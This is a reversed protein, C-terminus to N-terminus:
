KHEDAWNSEEENQVDTNNGKEKRAAIGFYTGDLVLIVSLKM